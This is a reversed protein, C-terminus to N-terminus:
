EVNSPIAGNAPLSLPPTEIAVKSESKQLQAEMATISSRIFGALPDLQLAQKRAVEAEASRDLAQLNMALGMWVTASSPHRKALSEFVVAARQHKRRRM